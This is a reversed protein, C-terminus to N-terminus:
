LFEALNPIRPSKAILAQLIAGDKYTTLMEKQQLFNSLESNTLFYNSQNLFEERLLVSNQINGIAPRLVFGKTKEYYYTDCNIRRSKHEKRLSPDIQSTSDSLPPRRPERNVGIINAGAISALVDSAPSTDDTIHSIIERKINTFYSIIRDYYGLDKISRFYHAIRGLRAENVAKGEFDFWYHYYQRNLYHRALEKVDKVSFSLSVPVFIPKDNKADLFDYTADVFALYDQLDIIPEKEWKEKRTKTVFGTKVYRYKKINPVFLLPKSYQYYYDFFGSLYEASDAYDLPNFNFTFNVVQAKLWGRKNFFYDLKANDEERCIDEIKSFKDIIKSYEFLKFDHKRAIHTEFDLRSIRQPNMDLSKEQREFRVNGITFRRVNYWSEKDEIVERIAINQSM